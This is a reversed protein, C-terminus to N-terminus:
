RTAAEPGGVDTTGDPMRRGSTWSRAPTTRVARRSPPVGALRVATGDAAPEPPVLHLRGGPRLRPAPARRPRSRRPDVTAPRSGPGRLTSSSSRAVAPAARRLGALPGALLDVEDGDAALARVAPGTLLVDGDNDLRVALVRGSMAARGLLLRVADVLDAAVGPADRVETPVRRRRPCSSPAHARAGPPRSTPASTAWWPASGSTSAWPAPPPTCWAPGPKRCSCGQGPAHPCVQWTDFPGLMATVRANVAAVDRPLAPRPRRRVPQDGRRDPCGRACCTWPTSRETSPSVLGPRRQLPRRARPHRRPRVAGGAGARPWPGANRHRWQGAVRHGVAAVPIAVSTVLM